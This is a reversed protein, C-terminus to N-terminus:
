NILLVKKSSNTSSNAEEKPMKWVYRIVYKIMEEANDMCGSLDCFAIEPEMMWFEAAHRTTNSNESRLLVSHTYKKSHKLLDKAM